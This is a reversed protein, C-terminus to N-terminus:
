ARAAARRALRASGVVGIGVCVRVRARRRSGERAWRGADGDGEIAAAVEDSAMCSAGAFANEARETGPSIVQPVPVPAV